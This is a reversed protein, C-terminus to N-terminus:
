IDLVHVCGKWNGCSSVWLEWSERWFVGKLVADNVDVAGGIKQSLSATSVHLVQDTDICILDQSTGADTM